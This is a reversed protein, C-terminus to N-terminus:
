TLLYNFSSTLFNYKLVSSEIRNPRTFWGTSKLAQGTRAVREQMFAQRRVFGQRLGSLGVYQRVGGLLLTARSAGSWEKPQM